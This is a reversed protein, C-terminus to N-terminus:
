AMPMLGRAEALRPRLRRARTGVVRGFREELGTFTHALFEYREPDAIQRADAVIPAILRDYHARSPGHYACRGEGLRRLDGDFRPSIHFLEHVVTEIKRERSLNLFRPVYFNVYYLMEVGAVRLAPWEWTRGRLERTVAGKEFRLPYCSAFTGGRGHTRSITLGFLVRTTDVHSLDECHATLARCFAAIDDTLNYGAADM